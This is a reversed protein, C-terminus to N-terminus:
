IVRKVILNIGTVTENNMEINCFAPVCVLNYGKVAIFGRAIIIAKVAQNLSAAGVCKLIVSEKENLINTIAGALKSPDTKGSIKLENM